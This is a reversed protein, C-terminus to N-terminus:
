QQFMLENEFHNMSQRHNICIQLLLPRNIRIHDSLDHLEHLDKGIFDGHWPLLYEKGQV